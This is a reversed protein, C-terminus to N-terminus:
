TKSKQGKVEFRQGRIMKMTKKIKM